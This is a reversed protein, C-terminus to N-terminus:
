VPTSWNVSFQSLYIDCIWKNMWLSSAESMEEDSKDSNDSNNEADSDDKEEAKFTEEIYKEVRDRLQDVRTANGMANEFELYKRFVLKM